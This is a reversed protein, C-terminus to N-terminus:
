RKRECDKPSKQLGKGLSGMQSDSVPESERSSDNQSKQCDKRHYRRERENRLGGNNDPNLLSVDIRVELILYLLPKVTSM